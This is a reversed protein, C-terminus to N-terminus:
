WENKITEEKTQQLQKGAQDDMSGLARDQQQQGDGKQQQQATTLGEQSSSDWAIVHGKGPLPVHQGSDGSEEPGGDGGGRISDDVTPSFPADLDVELMGQLACM